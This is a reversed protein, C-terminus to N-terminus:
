SEDSATLTLILLLQELYDCNEQMTARYLDAYHFNKRQRCRVEINSLEAVQNNINTWIKRLDSSYPFSKIQKDLVDLYDTAEIANAFKETMVM